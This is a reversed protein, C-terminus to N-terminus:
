LWAFAERLAARGGTELVDGHTVSVRDFDFRLIRDVSDRAARRDRINIKVVFNPALRGYAGTLRFWFARSRPLPTRVNMCLDTLVLTRSAPHFLVLESLYPAGAFLVHELAGKFILVPDEALVGDFALDKRKAPLGPVGLLLADPYARKWDGAFFHHVRNPALIARVPGLADVARRTADDAQAPSHLLLGGDALRVITMRTGVELLGIVCLPREATWIGDGLPQLGGASL